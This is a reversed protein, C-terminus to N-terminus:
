EPKDHHANVSLLALSVVGHKFPYGLRLKVALGGTSFAKGPGAGIRQHRRIEGMAWRCRARGLVAVPAGAEPVAGKCSGSCIFGHRLGASRWVIKGITATHLHAWRRSAAQLRM